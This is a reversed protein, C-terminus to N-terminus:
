KQNRARREERESSLCGRMFNFMAAMDGGRVPVRGHMDGGRMVCNISMDCGGRMVGDIAMDCGGRMVYLMPRDAVERDLGMVGGDAMDRHRSMAMDLDAPHADGIPHAHMAM